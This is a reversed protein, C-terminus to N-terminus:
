VKTISGGFVIFGMYGSATMKVTFSNSGVSITVGSATLVDSYTLTGGANPTNFIYMGKQNASASSTFMLFRTGNTTTFSYTTNGVTEYFPLGLNERAQELSNGGTGGNSIALPLQASTKYWGFWTAGGNSSCRRWEETGDYRIAIQILYEISRTSMVVLKFGVTFPSHLFTQVNSAPGSYYVGQAVYTDLDANEPIATGDLLNYSQLNINADNATNAGTGGELIPVPIESMIPITVAGNAGNVSTVISGGGSSNDLWLEINTDTPATSGVHVIDPYNHVHDEKAYKTSTGVAATGLNSPTVTAASPVAVTVNGTEGNVSQVPAAAAAGSANVFGSDNTLDSVKSPIVTSSPLAGVDSATPMKHVHDERAYKTSTGVSATGLNSPTDTAASPVSVTVAGTSGNVSTVPYPPPNIDSYQAVNAVNGLGIDTKDLVVAGTKSNVSTVPADSSDVPVWTYTGSSVATCVYEYPHGTATTNIYHQGVVGVTSTTPASTGTLTVRQAGSDQLDYTTEGVTIQDLYSM